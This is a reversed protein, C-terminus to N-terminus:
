RIPSFAEAHLPAQAASTALGRIPWGCCTRCRRSAASRSRIESDGNSSSAVAAAIRRHFRRRSRMKIFCGPRYPSVSELYRRQAERCPGLRWRHSARDSVGTLGPRRASTSTSTKSTPTAAGRVRVFGATSLRRRSEGRLPRQRMRRPRHRLEIEGPLMRRSTNPWLPLPSRSDANRSRNSATRPVRPDVRMPRRRSSYACPVSGGGSSDVVRTATSGLDLAEVFELQRFTGDSSRRPGNSSPWNETIVSRGAASATAIEPRQMLQELEQGIPAVDAALRIAWDKWGETKEFEALIRSHAASGAIITSINRWHPHTM